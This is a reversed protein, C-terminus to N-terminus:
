NSQKNYLMYIIILLLIIVIFYKIDCNSDDSFAEINISSSGTYSYIITINAIQIDFNPYNPLVIYKKINDESSHEQTNDMTYKNGTSNDIPSKSTKHSEIHKVDYSNEKATYTYTYINVPCMNIEEYPTLEYDKEKGDRCKNECDDRHKEKKDSCKQNSICKNIINTRDSRININDTQKTMVCTAFRPDIFQVTITINEFDHLNPIEIKNVDRINDKDSRFSYVTNLNINKHIVKHIYDNAQNRRHFVINKSM